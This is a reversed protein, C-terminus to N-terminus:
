VSFPQSITTQGNGSMGGYSMNSDEGTFVNGATNYGLLAHYGNNYYYLTGAGASFTASGPYYNGVAVVNMMTAFAEGQHNESLVFQDYYGGPGYVTLYFENIYYTSNESVSFYTTWGNAGIPYNGFLVEKNLYCGGNSTWDTICWYGCYSYSCTAGNPLTYGNTVEFLIEQYEITASGNTTSEYLQVQESFCGSSIHKSTLVRVHTIATHRSVTLGRNGLRKRDLM